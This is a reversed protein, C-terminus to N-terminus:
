NKGPTKSTRLVQLVENGLSHVGGLGVIGHESTHLYAFAQCSPDTYCQHDSKGEESKCIHEARKTATLRSHQQVSLVEQTVRSERAAHMSCDRALFSLALHSASASGKCNALM